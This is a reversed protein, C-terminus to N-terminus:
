NAPRELHRIVAQILDVADKDQSADTMMVIKLAAV